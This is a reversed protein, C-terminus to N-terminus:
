RIDLDLGLFNGIPATAGLFVGFWFNSVVGACNKSYFASISRAAKAGFAKNLYPNKIIRQPIQYLRSNNSINGSIIGSIFLFVGAISAHLIAKSEVPNLDRLLKNAKDTALNQQFIIDLGYIILLAVPFALLV